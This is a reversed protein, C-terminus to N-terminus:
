VEPPAPDPKEPKDHPRESPKPNKTGDPWATGGQM